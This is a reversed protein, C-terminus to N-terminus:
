KRSNSHVRIQWTAGPAIFRRHRSHVRRVPVETPEPPFCDGLKEPVHIHLHNDASIHRLHILDFIDDSTQNGEKEKILCNIEQWYSLLLFLLAQKKHYTHLHYTLLANLLCHNYTAYSTAYFRICFCINKSFLRPLQILIFIMAAVAFLSCCSILSITAEFSIISKNHQKLLTHCM